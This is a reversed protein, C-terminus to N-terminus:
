TVHRAGRKSSRTRVNLKAALADAVRKSRRLTGSSRTSISGSRPSPSSRSVARTSLQTKLLVPSPPCSSLPSSPPSSFRLKAHSRSKISRDSSQLSLVASRTADEIKIDTEWELNVCEEFLEEETASLPVEAPPVLSVSLESSPYTPADDLRAREKAAAAAMLTPDPPGGMPDNDCGFHKGFQRVLTGKAICERTMRVFERLATPFREVLTDSLFVDLTTGFDTFTSSASQLHEKLYLRVAEVPVWLGKVESKGKNVITAGHIGNPLPVQTSKIIPTVNVFDTDIRRLLTHSGLSSQYVAIGEVHTAVIRPICPECTNVVVSGPESPLEHDSGIRIDNPSVCPSQVARLESADGARLETNLQSRFSPPPSYSAVPSNMSLSHILSSLGHSIMPDSPPPSPVHDPFASPWLRPRGITFKSEPSTPSVPFDEPPSSFIEPEDTFSFGFPTTPSLIAPHRWDTFTPGSLSLSLDFDDERKIRALTPSSRSPHNSSAIPDIHIHGPDWDWDQVSNIPEELKVFHEKMDLDYEWQDLLEQVDQNESKVRLPPPPQASPSRPGPSEWTTSLEEEDGEEDDWGDSFQDGNDDDYGERSLEQRPPADLDDVDISPGFYKATPSNPYDSDPDTNDDSNYYEDDSDEDDENDSNPPPSAASQVSYPVSPSRRNVTFDGVTGQRVRSLPPLKLTLKVKNPPPREDESSRDSEESDDDSYSLSSLPSSPMEPLSNPTFQRLVCERTSRRKRKQGCQVSEKKKKYASLPPAGGDVYDSLRIGARAFPCPAGVARSLYWVVTGRRFNTLRPESCTSSSAGGSTSYLAPLLDDDAPTGSLVHKLLLPSDLQSECRQLHTRIFTTIAQSAASLNQCSYGMTMSLESLDKITMAKNDVSMLCRGVALFIKSTADDPHLVVHPPPFQPLYSPALADSSQRLRISPKTSRNRSTIQLSQM